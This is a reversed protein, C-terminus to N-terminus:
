KNNKLMEKLRKRPITDECVTGETTSAGLIIKDDKIVVNSEGDSNINPPLITSNEAIEKLAELRAKDTSSKPSLIFEELSMDDEPAKIYKPKFINSQFADDDPILIYDGKKISLPNSIGNFKCIYDFKSADGLTSQAILDPRGEYSETVIIIRRIPVNNLPNYTARTLDVINHGKKDGVVYKNDLIASNLM